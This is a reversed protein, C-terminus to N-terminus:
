KLVLILAVAGLGLAIPWQRNDGRLVKFRDLELRQKERAKDQRVDLLAQKGDAIHNAIGSGSEAIGEARDAVGALGDFFGWIGGWTNNPAAAQLADDPHGAKAAM